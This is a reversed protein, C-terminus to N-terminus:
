FRYSLIYNGLNTYRKCSDEEEENKEEELVAEGLASVSPSDLSQNPSSTLPQQLLM